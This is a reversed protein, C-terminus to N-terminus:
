GRPRGSRRGPYRAAGGNAGETPQSRGAARRAVDQGDSRCAARLARRRQWRGRRLRRGAPLRRLAAARNVGMTRTEERDCTQLDFSLRLTRAPSKRSREPPERVRRRGLDRAACRVRSSWSSASVATASRRPMAGAEFRENARCCLTARVRRPGIARARGGEGVSRSLSAVAPARTRRSASSASVEAVGDVRAHDLPDICSGSGCTRRSATGHRQFLRARRPMSKARRHLSRRDHRRSPRRTASPGGPPPARDERLTMPSAATGHQHRRQFIAVDVDIESASSWSPPTRCSLGVGHRREFAGHAVQRLDALRAAPVPRRVRQDRERRALRSRAGVASGGNM